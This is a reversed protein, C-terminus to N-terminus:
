CLSCRRARGTAAACSARGLTTTLYLRGNGLLTGDADALLGLGGRQAIHQLTQCFNENDHNGTIAM